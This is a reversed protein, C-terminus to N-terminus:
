GSSVSIKVMNSPDEIRAARCPQAHYCLKIAKDEGAKRLSLSKGNPICRCNLKATLTQSHVSGRYVRDKCTIYRGAVIRVRLSQLCAASGLLGMGGLRLVGIPKV